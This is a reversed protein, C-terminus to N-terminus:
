YAWSITLCEVGLHERDGLGKEAVAQQGVEQLVIFAGLGDAVDEALQFFLGALEGEQFRHEVSQGLKTIGSGLKPSIEVRDGISEVM